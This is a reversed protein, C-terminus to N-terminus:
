LVRNCYSEELRSDYITSLQIQLQLVLGSTVDATEDSVALPM